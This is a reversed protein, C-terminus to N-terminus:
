SYTMRRVYEQTVPTYDGYFSNLNVELFCLIESISSELIEVSSADLKTFCLLESLKVFLRLLHEIGYIESMSKKPYDNLLQVYQPREFRYLLEM